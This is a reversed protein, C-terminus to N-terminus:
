ITITAQAASSPLFYDDLEKDHKNRNYCPYIFSKYLELTGTSLPISFIMIMRALPPAHVNRSLIPLVAPLNPLIICRYYYYHLGCYMYCNDSSGLGATANWIWSDRLSQINSCCTYTRCRCRWFGRGNSNRSTNNVLSFRRPLFAVKTFCQRQTRAGVTHQNVTAALVVAM